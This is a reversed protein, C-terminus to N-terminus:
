FRNALTTVPRSQEPPAGEVIARLFRLIESGLGGCRGGWAPPLIRMLILRRRQMRLRGVPGGGSGIAPWARTSSGVAIEREGGRGNMGRVAAVPCASDGDRECAWRQCATGYERGGGGAGAVGKRLETACIYGAHGSM